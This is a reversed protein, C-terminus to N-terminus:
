VVRGLARETEGVRIEVSILKPLLADRLAALVRNEFLNNRMLELLPTVTTEFTELLEKQPRQLTDFAKRTITDFVAGHTRQKLDVVAHRVTFYVFFDGVGDAEQIEYCSQNMAM